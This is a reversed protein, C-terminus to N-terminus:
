EQVFVFSAGICGRATEGAHGDTPAGRTVRGSSVAAGETRGSVEVVVVEVVVVM